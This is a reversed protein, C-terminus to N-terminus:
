SSWCQDWVRDSGGGGEVSRGEGLWHENNGTISISWEASGVALDSRQAGVHGLDVRGLLEVGSDGVTVKSGIGNWNSTVGDVVVGGGVISVLSDDSEDLRV